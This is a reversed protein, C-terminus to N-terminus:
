QWLRLKGFPPLSPPPVYLWANLPHRLPTPMYTMSGVYDTYVKAPKLDWVAVQDAAPVEQGFCNLGRMAHKM